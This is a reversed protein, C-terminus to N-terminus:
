RGAGLSVRLIAAGARAAGLLNGSVKSKGGRRRRYRIPLERIRLGAAAAKLQMEVPWGHAPECMDLADLAERRIARMSGLDTYRHGFRAWLIWTALTNGFRQLPRLAGPERQGRVRSGIVLDARDSLIPELLKPLDKPDEACAADMFAVIQAGRGVAEDVGARCARGYGRRPEVVVVAGAEIAREATQDGSGGDVVVVLDVVQERVSRVVQGITEAEDLAPIVVAVKM